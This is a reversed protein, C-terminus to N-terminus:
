RRLAYRCLRARGGAGESGVLLDGNPLFGLSEPQPLLKADLRQVSRVEGAPSLVLLLHDSGALLFLDGTAPRVALDSFALELLVREKGKASTREPLVVSLREAAAIVQPRSCCLAPEPDARGTALDFRYLPREDRREKDRKGLEKPALWLQKGDAAAAVGEFEVVPLRLEHQGVLRLREGGPQLELQLLLGDSRLVFYQEGVRCLGEYDGRGAFPLVRRVAAQALDFVFVAGAEDQVCAITHDDLVAIASLERLEDPLQWSHAPQSLDFPCAADPAATPPPTEPEQACAGPLLAALLLSWRRGAM